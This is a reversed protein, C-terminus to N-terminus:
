SIARSAGCYIRPRHTCPVLNGPAQVSYQNYPAPYPPTHRPAPNRRGPVFLSALDTAARTPRLRPAADIERRTRRLSAIAADLRPNLSLPLRSAEVGAFAPRLRAAIAELGTGLWGPPAGKRRAQRHIRELRQRPSRTRTRFEDRAGALREQLAPRVRRILRGLM